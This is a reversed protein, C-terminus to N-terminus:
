PARSVAIRLLQHLCRVCLAVQHHIVHLQVASPALQGCRDCDMLRDAARLGLLERVAPLNQTM